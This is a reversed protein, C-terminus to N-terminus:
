APKPRGRRLILVNGSLCLLLGAFTAPHWQFSEFVTSIMLAVIPIAVSTYGAREPGINKVLALYAGFAAISGFLTLYALSAVYKFSPDFAFSRGAVLAYALVGLTGYMMSFANAQVVPVGAKQVRVITMNGLSAATTALLGLVLGTFADGGQSFHALEPWFVLAIGAFGLAAGGAVEARLPTGFFIRAGAVNMFVMTSFVVALLGSTLFMESYYVLVYNIGFMLLGTLAFFAHEARGYRLNLKRVFCWAFLLIASIGFRYAVSMEASVVGFQFTIAIWTSGWILVCALYLSFNSMSDNRPFGRNYLCATACRMNKRSNKLSRM